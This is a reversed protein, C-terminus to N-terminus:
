DLENKKEFTRGAIGRGKFNIFDQAEELPASEHVGFKIKSNAPKPPNAYNLLAQAASSLDVRSIYTYWAMIGKLPIYIDVQEKTYTLLVAPTPVGNKSLMLSPYFTLPEDNIVTGAVLSKGYDTLEINGNNDIFIEDKPNSFWSIVQSLVNTLEYVGFWDIWVSSKFDRTKFPSELVLGYSYDLNINLVEEHHNENYYEVESYFSTMKNLKLNKRFFSVRLKLVLNDAIHLVVMSVANYKDM